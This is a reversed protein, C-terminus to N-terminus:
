ADSLHSTDNWLTLVPTVEHETGLISVSATSLSLLTGATPPIIGAIARMTTTKGAGNPGLLGLVQGPEVTFSLEGVAVTERYTKRFADVIIM